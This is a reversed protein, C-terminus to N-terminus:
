NHIELFTTITDLIYCCAAGVFFYCLAINWMFPEVPLRLISYTLIGSWAGTCFSCSLMDAIFSIHSCIWVRPKDLLKAYQLTFCIGYMLFVTLFVEM